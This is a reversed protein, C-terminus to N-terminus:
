RRIAVLSVDLTDHMASILIPDFRHLRHNASLVYGEGALLGTFRFHGFTNAFARRTIGSADTLEVAARAIPRGSTTLVRGAITVPAATPALQFQWFGGTVQYPSQSSSRGAMPQGITGTVSFPGGSSTGGGSAIVSQTIEYTGTSQSFGPLISLL